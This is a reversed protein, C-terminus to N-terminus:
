AVSFRITPPCIGEALEPDTIPRITALSRPVARKPGDSNGLLNSHETSAALMGTCEQVVAHRHFAPSPPVCLLEAGVIPVIAAARRVFISRLDDTGVERDDSTLLWADSRNMCPDHM